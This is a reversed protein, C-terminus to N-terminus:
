LKVHSTYKTLLDSPLSYCHHKRELLTNILQSPIGRVKRELCEKMEREVNISGVQEDDQLNLCPINVRSVLPWCVTVM